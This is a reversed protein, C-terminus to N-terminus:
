GGGSYLIPRERLPVTPFARVDYGLRMSRIFDNEAAVAVRQRERVEQWDTSLRYAIWLLTHSTTAVSPVVRNLCPVFSYGDRVPLVNGWGMNMVGGPFNSQPPFYHYCSTHPAAGGPILKLLAYSWSLRGYNKGMYGIYNIVGMVTKPTKHYTAGLGWAARLGVVPVRRHGLVCIHMHEVVEGRLELRKPQIATTAVYYPYGHERLWQTARGAALRGEEITVVRASTLTCFCAGLKLLEPHFGELETFRKLLRSQKRATPTTACTVLIAPTGGAPSAESGSRLSGAPQDAQLGESYSSPGMVTAV